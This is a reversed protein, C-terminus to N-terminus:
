IGTPGIQSSTNKVYKFFMQTKLIGGLCVSFILILYSHVSLLVVGM